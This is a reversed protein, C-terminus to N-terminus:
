TLQDAEVYQPLLKKYDEITSAFPLKEFLHLLYKYPELGNAKATETLTYFFASASAGKASYSFLWNKRGVAFPRVANEALNNDIPVHGSELFQTLRPWQRQSYNIAKGFLSSPLANINEQLFKEFEEIVPKSEAQRKAVLEDATLGKERAEQEVKYLKGIMRLAKTARNNIKNKGSAKIVESFKRRAHAWCGAHKIGPNTDLFNYGAYGDTQVIGGYGKLIGAAVDGSRSPSYHYLCVPHAPDGGRFVWMYSKDSAKRGKEVIVQFPTEDVQILPGSLLLEYLIDQLPRGMESVWIKWNCMTARPLTIGYRKFQNEQRHFPLSDTFVGTIIYALLSPTCFSKPILQKPLPAIKVTGGETELGECCKCAYKYRIHRCVWFRPPTMELKESVEEGIRTLENGCGCKKEEPSLDHIVEERPLDAPLPKRGSKKRSHKEIILEEPEQNEENESEELDDYLAGPTFNDDILHKETKRGYLQITLLKIRERLFVNEREFKGNKLTLDAVLNKLETDNNALNSREMVM